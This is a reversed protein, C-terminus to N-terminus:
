VSGEPYIIYDPVISVPRIETPKRGDHRAM